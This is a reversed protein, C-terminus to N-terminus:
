NGSLDVTPIDHRRSTKGQQIHESVHQAGNDCTVYYHYHGADFFRYVTCGENTFLKSVPVNPNDTGAMGVPDQACGAIMMTLILAGLIVLPRTNRYLMNNM